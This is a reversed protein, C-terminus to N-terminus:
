KIGRMPALYPLVNTIVLDARSNVRCMNRFILEDDSNRNQKSEHRVRNSRAAEKMPAEEISKKWLALELFTTAEKLKEYECEYHCLRQWFELLYMQTM